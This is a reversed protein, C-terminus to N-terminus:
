VRQDNTGSYYLQVADSLMKGDGPRRWSVTLRFTGAPVIISDAIARVDSTATVIGSGSVGEGGADPLGYHQMLYVTVGNYTYSSLGLDTTYGPSKTDVCHVGSGEIDTIFFPEYWGDHVSMGGYGATYASFTRDYFINSLHCFPQGPATNYPISHADESDPVVRPSINLETTPIRGHSYGNLDYEEGDPYYAKVILGAYNIYNGPEFKARDLGTAVIAIHDPYASGHKAIAAAEIAAKDLNTLQFSCAFTSNDRYKNKWKVLFYSDSIKPNVPMTTTPFILEDYPIIGFPYNEDTFVVEEADTSRSALLTCEIGSYDITEGDYYETKNPMHTIKMRVPAKKLTPTGGDEEPYVIYWGMDIDGSSASGGERHSSSSSSGMEEKYFRSLTKKPIRGLTIQKAASDLYITIKSLPLNLNMSHPESICHVMQGIRFPTKTYDTAHLDIASCEVQMANYQLRTLYKQAEALLESPTRIDSYSEVNVIYGYNDAANGVLIDSGNNVSAITLPKGNGGESESIAAGLPIVCTAFDKGDFSYTFNLLNKAFQVEQNCEYPMTNSEIFSIYNVGNRRELFFHGEEADLLKSKLVDSTQENDIKRYIEHDPVTMLGVQFQRSAEVMENHRSIVDRFFDSLYTGEPYEKERQVSDNFYGMAGECYVKKNKYFDLHIEIPRGFFHQIEDEYVEITLAMINTMDFRNYFKHNPPVTFEFSGTTDIEMNVQPSLLVLEPDSFDLIDEGDLLVRYLM